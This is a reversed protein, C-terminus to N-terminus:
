DHLLIRGQNQDRVWVIETRPQNALVAGKGQLGTARTRAAAYCVTEFTHKAWDPHDTLPAYVPHDYGSLMVSGDYALLAAVLEAHDEITMTDHLYKGSVRTEHVYPPDCYCLYGPGNYRQLIVRWDANEIQVRQLRAHIAPLGALSSLWKSCSEAMGRRSAGVVSSWSAGFSGSFSMRAIVYFRCARELPPASENAPDKWWTRADDYEQRAYPTLQVRRCFEPFLEPDRVVRFLNVLGGDIDNYTEVAVPPKAFLLSGGGGFPEVYRTHVPLLALLKSTM